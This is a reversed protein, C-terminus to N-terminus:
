SIKKVITKNDSTTGVLPFGLNLMIDL